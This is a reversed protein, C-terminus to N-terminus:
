RIHYLPHTIGSADFKGGYKHIGGLSNDALNLSVLAVNDGLGVSFAKTFGPGDGQWDDDSWRQWINSSIDLEKLTTNAAVMDSLAM